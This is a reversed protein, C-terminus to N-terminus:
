PAPATAPARMAPAAGLAASGAAATQKVDAITIVSDTGTAIVRALDIKLKRALARVAPMAKVGGVVSAQETRVADSSQMAGVVTGSDARPAGQAAADGDDSIAGGDDSVVVKHDGAPDDSGVGKAP